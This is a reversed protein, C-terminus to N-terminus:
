SDEWRHPYVALQAKDQEKHIKKWTAWIISKMEATGLGLVGAFSEYDGDCTGPIPHGEPLMGNLARIDDLADRQCWVKFLNVMGETVEM